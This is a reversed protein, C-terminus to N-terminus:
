PGDAGAFGAAAVGDAGAGLTGAAGAADAVGEAGERTWDLRSPPCCPGPTGAEGRGAGRGPCGRGPLLGNAGLWPMPWVRAGRGPPSAPGRGPLLGNLGLWPM